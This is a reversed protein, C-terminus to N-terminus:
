KRARSRGNEKASELAVAAIRFVMDRIYRREEPRLSDVVISIAQAEKSYSATKNKM